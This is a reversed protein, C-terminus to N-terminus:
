YTELFLYERQPSRPTSRIFLARSVKVCENICDYCILQHAMPMEDYCSGVVYIQLHIPIAKTVMPRLARSSFAIWDGIHFPTDKTLWLFQPSVVFGCQRWQWRRSGIGQLVFAFWSCLIILIIIIVGFLTTLPIAQLLVVVVVVVM